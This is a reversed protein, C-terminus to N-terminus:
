KGCLIKCINMVTPDIVKYYRKLGEARCKLINEDALHKLQKSVNAQLLGTEEVVQNVCKEGSFLTRLIRLRSPESLIKFRIALRELEEDNLM